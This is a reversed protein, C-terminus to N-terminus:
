SLVDIMGLGFSTKEGIGNRYAFSILQTEGKLEIPCFITRYHINRISMMRTVVKKREIYGQDLQLQIQSPLFSTGFFRNYQSVLHSAFIQSLDSDGPKVFHVASQDTKILLLPSLMKFKMQPQFQPEEIVEIKKLQFPIKFITFQPSNSLARVILEILQDDESSIYLSLYNGLIKIFGDIVDREPIMLQSFTFGPFSKKYRGFLKPKRTELYQLVTKRLNLYINYHYEIPISIDNRASLNLKIRM